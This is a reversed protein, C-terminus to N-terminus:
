YKISDILNQLNKRAKGSQLSEEAEAYCTAYSKSRDFAQIGIAANTLVVDNQESTGENKLIREFIKITDDITEAGYIDSQKLKSKNFDEPELISEGNETIIKTTDTLSVEDYGDLGHIITFNMGEEEMIYKYFPMIELSYVGAVQQKPKTPNVLPGMMNFFTKVGIGRRVPGLPKLAAHFLPAHMFTINFNDLQNKIIDADNTFKYGIGQIVNSSGCVSSIAGNGHKAVKYGAGAVIVSALTSINFTDKGDGGTGCMDILQSRDYDVAIMRELIADRFGSFEEFSIPRMRFVTLLSALQLENYKEEAIELMLNRSEQRDLEEHHYLRELVKKM